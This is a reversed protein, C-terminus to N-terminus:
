ADGPAPLCHLLELSYRQGACYDAVCRSVMDSRWQDRRAELEERSLWLPGVIGHDLPRSEDRPGVKGAFSFRLYTLNKHPHEWHYIGVLCIPQFAYGTEELTERVVAQLLTEGPDWHGAPQNLCRRGDVIEEVLLFRGAEDEAIAAVTIHPSWSPNM